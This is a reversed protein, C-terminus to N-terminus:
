WQKSGPQHLRTVKTFLSKSSKPRKTLRKSYKKQEEQDDCDPIGLMSTLSAERVERSVFAYLKPPCVPVSKVVQNFLSTGPDVHMRTAPKNKPMRGKYVYFAPELSKSNAMGRQRRFHGYSQMQKTNYCLYYVVSRPQLNNLVKKLKTVNSETRGAM